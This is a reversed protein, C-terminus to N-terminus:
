ELYDVRRLYLDVLHKPVWLNGKDCEIEPRYSCGRGYSNRVLLECNNTKANWRRGIVTSAHFNSSRDNPELDIMDFDYAIGVINGKELQEEIVKMSRTSSFLDVKSSKVELRESVPIKTKCSKEVLDSFFSANSSEELVREVEYQSLSKFVDRVQSYEDCTLGKGRKKRLAEIKSVTKSINAFALDSSNLESELCFGQKLSKELAEHVYGGSFEEESTGIFRKRLSNLIGGNYVTSIAIPSINKGTKFSVLDAATFAYCWGVGDQDRVPPMKSRFDIAKCSKAELQASAKGQEVSQKIEKEDIPLHLKNGYYRLKEIEATPDSYQARRRMKKLSQHFAVSYGRRQLAQLNITIPFQRQDFKCNEIVALVQALEKSVDSYTALNQAEGVKDYIFKRALVEDGPKKCNLYQYPPLFVMGDGKTIGLASWSILMLITVM